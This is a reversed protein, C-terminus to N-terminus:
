RRGCSPRQRRRRLTPSHYFVIYFILEYFYGGRLFFVQAHGEPGTVGAALMKREGEMVVEDNEAQHVSVVGGLKSVTHFTDILQSDSLRKDGSMFVSFMNIGVEATTMAGMEDEVGPNHKPIAMKLAYDCCVQTIIIM